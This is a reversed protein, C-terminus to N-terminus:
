QINGKLKMDMVRSKALKAWTDEPSASILTNYAEAAKASDNMAEYVRGLSFLAHSKLVFDSDAAKKYNAAADELKGLQENCVGVNYYALPATYAKKGKAGAATWYDLAAAYDKDQFAIEAALMNARVGTVGGKSLYPAVADKATARRSAAESDEIGDSDKTLVYTIEDIASLAKETSKANVSVCVAYVIVAAVAVGLVAFLCVRNKELFGNLKESVSKKETKDSM